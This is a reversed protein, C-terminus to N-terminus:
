RICSMIHSVFSYNVFFKTFKLLKLVVIFLFKVFTLHIYPQNDFGIKFSLNGEKSLGLLGLGQTNIQTVFHNVFEFPM